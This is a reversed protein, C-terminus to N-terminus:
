TAKPAPEGPKPAKEFAELARRLQDAAAEKTRDASLVLDPKVGDGEWTEGSPTEWLFVPLLFGAGGSLRFLKSEAALGYTSEGYVPAGRRVQLVRAVAEAGGATAGNVLVAVPKSWPPTESKSGSVTELVRGGREKLRLAEGSVFLGLLPIADRPTGEVVDRLDLLLRTAAKARPERLSSALEGAGLRVLDNVTLLATEGQVELRFPPESRHARQVTVDERELGEQVRLIGLNLSTGPKGRLLRVAQELSVDRLSRGDVTRVQDGPKIGATEAPSGPIVRVVQLSGFSKLVVLGPDASDPAPGTWEEVERPTLYTGNVDLGGLLGEYAGELLTEPNVPDVYNQQVLDFVEEFRSVQHFSADSAGARFALGGGLLLLVVATSLILLAVRSQRM